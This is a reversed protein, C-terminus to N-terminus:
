PQNEGPMSGELSGATSGSVEQDPQTGPPAPQLEEQAYWRHPTGDGFDALYFPQNRVIGVVRAERNVHEPMHPHTPVVVQGTQYSPAVGAQGQMMEQMHRMHEHMTMGGMQGMGGPMPIALVLQFGQPRRSQDQRLWDWLQLMLSNQAPAAQVGPLM